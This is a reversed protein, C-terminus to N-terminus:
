RSAAGATSTAGRRGLTGLSSIWGLLVSAVVIGLSEAFEPKAATLLITGIVIWIRLNLSLKLLPSRLGASREFEMESASNCLRRIARLRRGTLAGLVAFLIIELVAFRPWAFEWARLSETLYAGTVYVIVLSTISAV